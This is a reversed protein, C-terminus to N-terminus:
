GKVVSGQEEKVGDDLDKGDEREGCSKEECSKFHGM